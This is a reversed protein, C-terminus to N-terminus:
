QLKTKGRSGANAGHHAAAEESCLVLLHEIRLQIRPLYEETVPAIVM